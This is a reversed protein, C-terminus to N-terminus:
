ARATGFWCDKQVSEKLMNLPLLSPTYQPNMPAADLINRAPLDASIHRGNGLM